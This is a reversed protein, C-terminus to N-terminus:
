TCWLTHLLESPIESKNHGRNDPDKQNVAILPNNM